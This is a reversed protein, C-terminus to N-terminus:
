KERELRKCTKEFREVDGLVTCAGRAMGETGFHAYLLIAAILDIMLWTKIADKIDQKDMMLMVATKM